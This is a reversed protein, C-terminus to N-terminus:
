TRVSGHVREAVAGGIARPSASAALEITPADIRDITRTEGFRGGTSALRSRLTREIADAVAVGDNRAFGHLVLEEIEVEVRTM